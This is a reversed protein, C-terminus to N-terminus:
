QLALTAASALDGRSGERDLSGQTGRPDRLGVSARHGRAQPASSGPFVLCVPPALPDPCAATGRSARPVAAAMEALLGPTAKIARGGTREQHGTKETRATSALSAMTVPNAPSAPRGWPDWPALPARSGVCGRCGM